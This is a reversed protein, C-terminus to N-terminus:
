YLGPNIIKMLTKISDDLNFYERELQSKRATLTDIEKQIDALLIRITVVSEAGDVIKDISTVSTKHTPVGKENHEWGNKSVELIVKSKEHNAKEKTQNYERIKEARFFEAHAICDSILMKQKRLLDLLSNSQYGATGDGEILDYDSFDILDVERKEYKGNSFIYDNAKRSPITIETGSKASKFKM